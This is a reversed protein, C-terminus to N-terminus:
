LIEVNYIESWPGCVGYTNRWRIIIYVIKGRDQEEFYLKAPSSSHFDVSNIENIDDPQKDLIAFRIEFGRQGSPKTRRHKKSYYITLEVCKEFDSKVEAYPAETAVAVDKSVDKTRKPFGMNILDEDTIDLNPKILQVYLTSYIKKFETEVKNYKMIIQTNKSLNNFWDNYCQSYQKFKPMFVEDLWKGKLDAEGFGMRERTAPDKLYKVTKIVQKNLESRSTSM